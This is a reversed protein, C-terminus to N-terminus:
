LREREREKRGRLKWYQQIDSCCDFRPALGTWKLAFRRNKSTRARPNEEIGRRKKRTEKTKKHRQHFVPVSHTKEQM